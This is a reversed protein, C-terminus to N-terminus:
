EILLNEKILDEINEVIKEADQAIIENAIIMLKGFEADEGTRKYSTALAIKFIANDFMNYIEDLLIKMDNSFFFRNYIFYNKFNNVANTANIKQYVFLLYQYQENKDDANKVDEKQQESFEKTDLLEKLDFENLYTLDPYIQLPSTIIAIKGRTTQIKEWINTMIDLNKQYFVSKKDRKEALQSKISELKENNEHKVNELKENIRSDITKLYIAIGTSILVAILGSYDKLFTLIEAM